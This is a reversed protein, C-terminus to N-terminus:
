SKVELDRLLAAFVNEVERAFDIRFVDLGGAEIAAAVSPAHDALLWLGSVVAHFRILLTIGSGSPLTPLRAELAVAARSLQALLALKFRRAADVSIRRALVTHVTTSLRVFLPHEVVIEALARAVAAAGPRPAEVLGVGLRVFIEGLELLYVELLLEEKNRFYRFVSPKAVGAGRAVDEIRLESSDVRALLRRASDLISRRRLEKDDASRARLKELRRPL